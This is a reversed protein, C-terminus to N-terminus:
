ARGAHLQPHQGPAAVARHTSAPRHAISGGRAAQLFALVDRGHGRAYLPRGPARADAVMAGCHRPLRAM